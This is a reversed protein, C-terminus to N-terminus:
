AADERGGHAAGARLRGGGREQELTVPFCPRASVRERWWRGVGEEAKQPCGTTEGDSGRLGQAAQEWQRGSLYIERGWIEKLLGRRIAGAEVELGEEPGLAAPAAQHPRNEAFTVMGASGLGALLTTPPPGM